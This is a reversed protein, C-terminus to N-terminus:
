KGARIARGMREHEIRKAEQAARIALAPDPTIQCGLHAEVLHPHATASMVERLATEKAQAASVLTAHERIAADRADRAAATAQQATEAQQRMSAHIYEAATRALQVFTHQQEPRLAALQAVHQQLAAREVMWAQRGSADNPTRLAALAEQARQMDQDTAAIDQRTRELRTRLATPLQAIAAAWAQTTFAQRANSQAVVSAVQPNMPPIMADSPHPEGYFMRMEQANLVREATPQPAPTRRLRRHLRELITM